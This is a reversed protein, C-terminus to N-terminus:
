ISATSKPWSEETRSQILSEPLSPGMLRLGSSITRSKAKRSMIEQELNWLDDSRKNYKGILSKHWWYEFPVQVRGEKPHLSILKEYVMERIELAFPHALSEM